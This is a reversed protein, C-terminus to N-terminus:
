EARCRQFLIFDAAVRKDKMLSRLLKESDQKNGETKKSGFIKFNNTFLLFDILNDLVSHVSLFCNEISFISPM